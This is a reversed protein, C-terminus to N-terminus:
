HHQDLTFRNVLITVTMISLLFFLALNTRQQDILYGIAPNILLYPARGVMQLASLTTARYKSDIHQNMITSIWPEILNGVLGLVLIPIFGLIGLPFIALGFMLAILISFLYLGNLEGLSRRLDPLKKLAFIAIISTAAYILALEREFYNFKVGIAPKIMGWDFVFYIFLLLWSLLLYPKLQPLKFQKIGNITTQIPSEPLDRHDKTEKLWLSAIASLLSVGAFIFYPLRLNIHGVYGGIITAAAFALTIIIAKTAAIHPYRNEQHKAKLDDYVLAELAGSIFSRGLDQIALSVIWLWFNTTTATLIIGITVLATGLTTAFKRGLKDAIVGTPLESTIWFINLLAFILGMTTYDTFQRFYFYWVSETFWAGQCATIFYFLYVNM